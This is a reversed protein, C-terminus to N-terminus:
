KANMGHAFLPESIDDRPAHLMAAVNCPSMRMVYMIVYQAINSAAISLVDDLKTVLHFSSIRLITDKRRSTQFSFQLKTLAVCRLKMMNRRLSSCGGLTNITRM